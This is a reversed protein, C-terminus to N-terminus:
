RTPAAPASAAAPSHSTTRTNVKGGQSQLDYFYLSAGSARKNYVRGAISQKDAEPLREGKELPRASYQAVFQPISMTANYKHPYMKKGASSCCSLSSFIRHAPLPQMWVIRDAM